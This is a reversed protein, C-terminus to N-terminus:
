INYLRNTLEELFSGRSIMYNELPIIYENTRKDIKESSNKPNSSAM